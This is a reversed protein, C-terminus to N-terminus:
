NLRTATVVIREGYDGALFSYDTCTILTLQDGGRNYVVSMDQADVRRINSVVYNHDTENEVIDITDGVQLQEIRAFIGASGDALEVHGALVINGQEGLWDTYQLHGVRNGLVRVDWGEAQLATSVIISDVGLSPIKISPYFLSDLEEQTLPVNQNIAGTNGTQPPLAVQQEDPNDDTTGGGLLDFQVVAFIIGGVVVGLFGLIGIVVLPHPGRRRQNYM